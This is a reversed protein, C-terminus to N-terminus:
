RFGNLFGQRGLCRIVERSYGLHSERTYKIRTYVQALNRAGSERIKERLEPVSLYREWGTRERERYADLIQAEDPVRYVDQHVLAEVPLRDRPAPSEDPFGLSFGAVPVVQEPCGLVRAIADCSALTTGMFCIGLGLSEAALAANQAALVADIMGILFSMPNDFNGPAGRVALWKRMRHFDACFTLFVPAQMLMPQGFHAELMRARVEPDTTVIVSFVQMNGSSSARIGAELIERLLEPPVPDPKYKRISRHARIQDLVPNM